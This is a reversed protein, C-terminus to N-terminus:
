VIKRFERSDRIEAREENMDALPVETSNSAAVMETLTLCKPHTNDM